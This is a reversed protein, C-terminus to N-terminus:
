NIVAAKVESLAAEGAVQFMAVTRNLLDSFCCVKFNLGVVSQQLVKTVWVATQQLWVYGWGM